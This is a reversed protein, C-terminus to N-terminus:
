INSLDDLVMHERLTKLSGPILDANWATPEGSIINEGYVTQAHTISEVVITIGMQRIRLQGIVVEVATFDDWGARRLLKRARQGLEEHESM